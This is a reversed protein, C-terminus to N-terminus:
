PIDIVRKGAFPLIMAIAMETWVENQDVPLGIVHREFEDAEARMTLQTQLVATEAAGREEDFLTTASRWQIQGFPRLSDWRRSRM